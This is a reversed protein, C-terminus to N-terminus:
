DFIHNCSLAVPIKEITYLSFNCAAFRRSFYVIKAHSSTNKYYKKRLIKLTNKELMKKERLIKLTNKELM